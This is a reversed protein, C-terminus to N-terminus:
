ARFRGRTDRGCRWQVGRPHTGGHFRLEARHRPDRADAAEFGGTIQGNAGIAENIVPASLVVDDVVIAMRRQVNEGTGKRFEAAAENRMEFNILWNPARQPDPMAIATKIGEGSALPERELVYLRYDKSEDWLKPPQSFRIIKDEPLIGDGEAKALFRAM